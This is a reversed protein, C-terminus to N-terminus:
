RSTPGDRINVYVLILEIYTHLKNMQYILRLGIQNLPFSKQLAKM